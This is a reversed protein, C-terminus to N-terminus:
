RSLRKNKNREILTEDMEDLLDRIRAIAEDNSIKYDDGCILFTKGIISAVREPFKVYDLTQKKIAMWVEKSKRKRRSYLAKAVGHFLQRCKSKRRKIVLFPEKRNAASKPYMVGVADFNSKRCQYCIPHRRLNRNSTRYNHSQTPNRCIPCKPYRAKQPMKISRKM